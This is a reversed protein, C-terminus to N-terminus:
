EDNGSVRLAESGLEAEERDQMAPPLGEDVVRVQVAHHWTTSERSVTLAPHRAATAEGQRHADERAEEAPAKEPNWGVFPNTEVPLL